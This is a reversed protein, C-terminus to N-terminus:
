LDLDIETVPTSCCILANGVAPQDLPEPAYSVSGEVLGCECMHCVGTRCSWRVPVDCAEAFELLSRFRSDWPVTLGTRSFSVTPGTGAPGSPAHPAKETSTMIGPTVSAGPGFVEKHIFAAAVGFTTLDATLDALFMTPGCLYFHAEHPVGLKQLSSLNLHGTADCNGGVRDNPGPKSYVIFSHSNALGHLLDCAETAFPHEDSNRAGYLWWVERQSNVSDFCLSHLMSLVPTVGIGASIFVIPLTGSALTFEGRPASVELMDGAHTSDSIYRSGVGEARKVSIRYTGGDPPGSISYSRLIPAAGQGPRLRLVLFQGAISAPLASRDEKEFVFSSVDKSERHIAAVRLNLFGRWAPAPASFSTLGANGDRSGGQGSAVLAELSQKWGSSLAPIRAAVQVRDQQHGPLYFLSNIEAVTVKEPGETVKDIKDGAGIEGEEIVRFYFGPRHHSVLLAAMQPNNMRIGVRYCTVRPQTVEFLADGIRYRDGICVENDPLGDVTFNEGFQGYEFDHRQLFTEWHRYSELQYVMVARHEGGHGAVDGQGDGDLNLRRAMIRGTVPHKWIATHVRRGQWEVDRPLGINVSVLANM